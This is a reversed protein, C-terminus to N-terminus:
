KTRELLLQKAGIIWKFRKNLLWAAVSINLALFELLAHRKFLTGMIQKKDKGEKKLKQMDTYAWLGAAGSLISFPIVAHSTKFEFERKGFNWRPVM